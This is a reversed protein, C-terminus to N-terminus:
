MSAPGSLFQCHCFVFGQLSEQAHILYARNQILDRNQGAEGLLLEPNEKAKERDLTGEALGKNYFPTLHQDLHGPSMADWGNLETIIGLHVFWYMQLAEWFDGPAHAPVRRCIRGINLLEKKRADNDETQAMKVALDAHREAFIIVADCAIDMAKLQEAKDSAEPENLYDLRTRSQAIERKFGIMGKHYITGDLTTHGPARQEMFEPFFGAKYAASWNDPVEDFVRDRMSKGEWAPLVQAEFREIDEESIKFPTMDRRNLVRLDEGTHCNLEPFTSVAKPFPGREGVILEETGLYITKNECLYKFFKARMVPMSYKGLHTLYFETELVAREISISPVADFSLTRLRKIRGNM